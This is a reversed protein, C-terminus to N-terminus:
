LTHWPHIITIKADDIYNEVFVRLSKVVPWPLCAEVDEAKLFVLAHYGTIGADVLKKYHAKFGCDEIFYRWTVFDFVDCAYMKMHSSGQLYKRM